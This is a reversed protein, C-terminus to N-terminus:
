KVVVGLIVVEAYGKQQSALKQALDSRGCWGVNIFAEHDTAEFRARREAARQEVYEEATGCGRLSAAYKAAEAALDRNPLLSQFNNRHYWATLGEVTSLSKGFAYNDADHRRHTPERRAFDAEALERGKRVVVTAAYTRNQSTRKHTRGAPDTALFTTTKAM